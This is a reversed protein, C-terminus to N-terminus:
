SDALVSVRSEFLVSCQASLASCQAVHLLKHITGGVKGGRIPAGGDDDDDDGEGGGFKITLQPRGDVNEDWGVIQETVIGPNMLTGSQAREGAHCREGDQLM